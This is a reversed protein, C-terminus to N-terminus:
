MIYVLVASTTAVYASAFSKVDKETLRWLSEASIEHLDKKVRRPLSARFHHRASEETLVLERRGGDYHRKPKRKVHDSTLSAYTM